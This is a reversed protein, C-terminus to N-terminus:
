RARTTAAVMREASFPAMRLRRKSPLRMPRPLAM